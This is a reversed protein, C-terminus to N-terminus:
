LHRKLLGEPVFEDVRDFIVDIRHIYQAKLEEATYKGREVPLTINLVENNEAKAKIAEPTPAEEITINYM